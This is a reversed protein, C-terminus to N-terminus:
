IRKTRKAQRNYLTGSGRQLFWCYDAMIIKGIRGRYRKETQQHFREVHEDSVKGMNSPFLELALLSFKQHCGQVLNKYRNSIFNEIISEYAPHTQNGMFNDVVLCFQNWAEKEFLTLNESYSEDKM